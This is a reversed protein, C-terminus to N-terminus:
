GRQWQYRRGYRGTLGDLIAKKQTRDGRILTGFSQRILAFKTRTSAYTLGFLLRNRTLYYQHLQNGPKDTSGANKHWVRSHPQYILKLGCRKVRVSFEADELYLYYRDDLMGVRDVIGATFFMSCGTVFDTEALEDFQGTDVEDVGRHSAYVNDWDILGGAYWIVHGRQSKKYRDAHFERGHAFYIKSGVLGVEPKDAASILPILSDAAVTTDNNLLWIYDFRQKHAYTIGANNGGTFGLNEQQALVTVRDDYRKQIAEVSGDTSGNDVVVPVVTYGSPELHEISDLCALTDQKGNWNVLIIGVTAM